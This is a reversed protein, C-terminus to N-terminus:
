RAKPCKLPIIKLIQVYNVISDLYILPNTGQTREYDRDAIKDRLRLAINKSDEPNDSFRTIYTAMYLKELLDKADKTKNYVTIIVERAQDFNNQAAELISKATQLDVDTYQINSLKIDYNSVLCLDQLKGIFARLDGNTLKYLEEIAEPEIKFDQLKQVRSIIIKADELTTPKVIKLPCRSIIPDIINSPDNSILIFRVNSSYEQMLSRMAAQADTTFNFEDLCILRPIGDFTPKSALRKLTGRVDDIGRSSSANMLFFQGPQLDIQKGNEYKIFGLEVAFLKVLLTKGIGQSGSLTLNPIHNLRAYEKFMKVLETQGIVEDLKTPEVRDVWLDSM